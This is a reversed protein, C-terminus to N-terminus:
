QGALAAVVPAFETSERVVVHSVEFEERLQLLREVTQGVSGFILFPTSAVTERSLGLRHAARDIASEVDDGIVVRQVLISREIARGGAAESLWESRARLDDIGFGNPVSTGDPQHTLGTFQFIDAVRGAARIVRSGYGGVLFPVHDQVPRIGLDAISLRHYRGKAEYSGCDLLSRLALLSEELREVRKGPQRLELDMSEHEAAAYGTGLGLLLRGGTLNDVTAATRALLAPHHFENNLVLPGVRLESTAEAAVVLPIFPDVAGLHDYSFLEEYGLEEAQRATSVITARDSLDMAQVAFRFPRPVSDGYADSGGDPFMNGRPHRM